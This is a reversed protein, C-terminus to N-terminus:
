RRGRPLFKPGEPDQDSALENIWATLVREGDTEINTFAIGMGLDPRAYAVRGLAVMEAEEHVL